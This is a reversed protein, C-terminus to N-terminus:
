GLPITPLCRAKCLGHPIKRLAAIRVLSSEATGRGLSGRLALRTQFRRDRTPTVEIGEHGPARPPATRRLGAVTRSARVNGAGVKGDITIRCGAHEEAVAVDQPPEEYGSAQLRGSTSRSTGEMRSGPHSSGPLTVGLLRHVVKTQPEQCSGLEPGDYFAGDIVHRSTALDVGEPRTRAAWM